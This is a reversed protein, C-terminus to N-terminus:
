DTSDFGLPRVPGLVGDPDDLFVRHWDGCEGCPCDAGHPLEAGGVLRETAGIRNKAMHGYARHLQKKHGRAATWTGLRMHYEVLGDLFHDVTMGHRVNERYDHWYVVRKERSYDLKRLDVLERMQYRLIAYYPRVGVIAPTVHLNGERPNAEFREANKRYAKMWRAHGGGKLDFAPTAESTGDGKLRYGNLTLDMHPHRKLFAREGFDQYSMVAGLGDGLHETLTDWV